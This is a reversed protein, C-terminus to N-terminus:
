QSNFLQEYIQVLKRMEKEANIKKASERSASCASLIQNMTIRNLTEAVEKPEFSPAVWGLGYRHVMEAMAPSPGICIALGAV